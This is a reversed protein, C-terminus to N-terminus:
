ALPHLQRRARGVFADYVFPPNNRRRCIDAMGSDLLKLFVFGNWDQTTQLYPHINPLRATKIDIDRFSPYIMCAQGM